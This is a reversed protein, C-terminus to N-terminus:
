LMSALRSELAAAEADTLGAMAYFLRDILDQYPQAEEALRSREARAIKGRGREIREIQEILWKILEAIVDPFPPEALLSGVVDIM